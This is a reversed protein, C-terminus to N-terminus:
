FGVASGVGYVEVLGIGTNADESSVIATYAGPELDVQLAAERDDAPALGSAAIESANASARWNANSVILQSGRYLDLRPNPVTGTIGSSAVSPGKATILVTKGGDTLASLLQKM